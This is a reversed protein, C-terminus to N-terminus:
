RSLIQIKEGERIKVIAKKCGKKKGEIRGLRRKKPPINVIRVSLVKVGYFAEVARKVQIKNANKRVKFVYKNESELLSAKETIHPSILVDLLDIPIKKGQEKKAQVRETITEKSIKEKKAVSEKREKPTEKQEKIGKEEKKGGKTKKEEKKEEEKKKKKFFGFPM